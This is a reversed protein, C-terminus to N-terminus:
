IIIIFTRYIGAPQFNACNNGTSFLLCAPQHHVSSYLKKTTDWHKRSYRCSTASHGSDTYGPPIPIIPNDTYTTILLCTVILLCVHVTYHITTVSVSNAANSYDPPPLATADSFTQQYSPPQHPYGSLSPYDQAVDLTTKDRQAAQNYGQTPYEAGNYGQQAALYAVSPNDSYAPPKLQEAAMRRQSYRCVRVINFIRAAHLARYRILQRHLCQEASVLVRLWSSSHM